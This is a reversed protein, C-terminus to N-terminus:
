IDTYGSICKFTGRYESIIAISGWENSRQDTMARFLPLLLSSFTLLITKSSLQAHQILMILSSSQLPTILTSYENAFFSCTLQLHNMVLKQKM